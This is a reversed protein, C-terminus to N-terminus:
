PRSSYFSYSYKKSNINVYLVLPKIGYGSYNLNVKVTEKGKGNFNVTKLVKGSSDALVLWGQTNVDSDYELRLQQLDIDNSIYDSIDDTNNTWNKGTNSSKDLSYNNRESQAANADDNLYQSQIEPSCYFTKNYIVVSPNDTLRVIRREIVPYRCGDAYLRDYQESLNITNQRDSSQLNVKDDSVSYYRTTVFHKVGSISDSESVHLVIEGQYSSEYNGNAKIFVYECYKGFRELVGYVAPSEIMPFRLLIEPVSNMMTQQRNESGIFSLNNASQLYHYQANQFYRTITDGQQQYFDVFTDDSFSANRLDYLSDTIVERQLVLDGDRLSNHEFDVAYAFYYSFGCLSIIFLLKKVMIKPRKYIRVAFISLEQIIHLYEM